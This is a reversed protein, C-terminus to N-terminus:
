NVFIRSLKISQNAMLFQNKRMFFNIKEAPFILLKIKPFFDLKIQDKIQFVDIKITSRKLALL